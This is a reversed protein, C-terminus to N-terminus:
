GDVRNVTECDPAVGDLTDAAVTDNGNGCSDEDLVDDQSMLTDDGEGGFTKDDGSGGKLRDAGALGHLEDVGSGGKVVDAGTGGVLMDGGGLGLLVDAGPGGDLTDAADSGSVVDRGSGGKAARVDGDLRTDLRVDDDVTITNAGDYAHVRIQQADGPTCRVTMRTVPKCGRGPDIPQTDRFVIQGKANTEVRIDNDKGKGMEASYVIANLAMYDATPSAIKAGGTEVKVTSDALAPTAGVAMVAGLAAMAKTINATRIM